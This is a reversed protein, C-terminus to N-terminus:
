KEFAKNTKELLESLYRNAEELNALTKRRLYPKLKPHNPAIVQLTKDVADKLDGFSFLIDSKHIKRLPRERVRIVEWGTNRLLESKKKDQLQRDRHHWSGDYELILNKTHVVIDVDKIKGDIVIKHEDVRFRFFKKLEFAFRIEEKSHMGLTCFPCGSGRTRNHPSAPWEHSPDHTCKWWFIRGSGAIINTPLDESDNLSPHYERAIKPFKKALSNTVSVQQNSCFPCGTPKTKRTRSRVTAPWEHDPGANCKWWYESRDNAKIQKPDINGNLVPHWQGAIEPVSALSNSASLKRNDCYPCKKSKSLQRVEQMWEHDAGKPCKWWVIKTSTASVNDPSLSHGNKNPHWWKSIEPHKRALM